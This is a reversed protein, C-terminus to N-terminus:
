SNAGEVSDGSNIALLVNGAVDFLEIKYFSPWQGIWVALTEQLNCPLPVNSTKVIVLNRTSFSDSIIHFDGEGCPDEKGFAGIVDRLARYAQEQVDDPIVEKLKRVFNNHLDILEKADVATLVEEVLSSKILEVGISESIEEDTELWPCQEFLKEAFKESISQSFGREQFYKSFIALYKM